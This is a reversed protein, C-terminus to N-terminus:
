GKAFKRILAIILATGLLGIAVNKLNFGLIEIDFLDTFVKVPADVVATTLTLFSNQQALGENIGDAKGSNYGETKGANYGTNYGDNYGNTYAQDILNILDPPVESAQSNFWTYFDYNTTTDQIVTIISYAGNKNTQWGNEKLYATTYGQITNYYLGNAQIQMMTYANGASRFQMSQTMENDPLSLNAAFLYTGKQIIFMPSTKIEFSSTTNSGFTYRFPNVTNNAIYGGGSLLNVSEFQYTGNLTVTFELSVGSVAYVTNTWNNEESFTITDSNVDKVSISTVGTDIDFSVTNANGAASAETKFPKLTFILVLAFTILAAMAIAIIINKNITKKKM